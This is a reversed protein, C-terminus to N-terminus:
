FLIDIYSMFHHFINMIKTNIYNLTTNKSISLLLDNRLLIINSVLISYGYKLAIYKCVNCIIIIHM